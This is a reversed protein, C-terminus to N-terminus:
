FTFSSSNLKKRIGGFFQVIIQYGTVIVPLATVDTELTLIPPNEAKRQRIKLKLERLIMLNLSNNRLTFIEKVNNQLAVM